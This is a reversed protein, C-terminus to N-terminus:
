VSLAAILSELEVELFTKGTKVALDIALLKHFIHELDVLLFNRAQASVKDVVFPHVKMVQRPDYGNDIAERAQLLLRFQRVVMVFVYRPDEDELLLRLYGLAAQGRRQGLADVMSFIDSQGRFPTLREIDDITITRSRDVYDLLKILEHNALLPDDSVLDALMQAATSEIEGGHSHCQQELWHLFAAGKLTACKRIYSKNPNAAAWLYLPSKSKYRAEKKRTHVDTHEILVLASTEQLNDLLQLFRDMWSSDQPLKEVHDLIILRRAALFPISLCAEELTGLDLGIASFRQTNMDSTTSDGLMQRMRNILETIAFTDDGYLLYVSPPPTEM